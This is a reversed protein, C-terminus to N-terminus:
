ICLREFMLSTTHFACSNETENNTQKKSVDSQVSGYTQIIHVSIFVKKLLLYFGQNHEVSPM